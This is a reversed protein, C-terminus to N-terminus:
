VHTKNDPFYEEEPITNPDVYLFGYMYVQFWHDPHCKKMLAYRDM